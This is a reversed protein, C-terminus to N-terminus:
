QEDREPFNEEQSPEEGEDDAIEIASEFAENQIAPDKDKVVLEVCVARLGEEKACDMVLRVDEAPFDHPYCIADSNGDNCIAEIFARIFTEKSMNNLYSFTEVRWAGDGRWEWDAPLHRISLSQITIRSTISVMHLFDGTNIVLTPLGGFAEAMGAVGDRLFCSVSSDSIANDIAPLGRLWETYKNVDNGIHDPDPNHEGLGFCQLIGYNARILSNVWKRTAAEDGLDVNGIIRAAEKDKERHGISTWHNLIREIEDAKDMRNRRLDVLMKKLLEGQPHNDSVVLLQQELLDPNKLSAFESTLIHHLISELTALRTDSHTKPEFM